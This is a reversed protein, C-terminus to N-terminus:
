DTSPNGGRLKKNTENADTIAKRKGYKCLVLDEKRPFYKDIPNNSIQALDAEKKQICYKRKRQGVRTGVSPKEVKYFNSQGVLSTSVNLFSRIDSFKGPKGIVIPNLDRPNPLDKQPSKPGLHGLNESFKEIRDNESTNEQSNKGMIVIEQDEQTELVVTSKGPTAAKTERSKMKELFLRLKNQNKPSNKKCKPKIKKCPSKKGTMKSSKSKLRDDPKDPRVHIKSTTKSAIEFSESLHRQNDICNERSRDLDHVSRYFEGVFCKVNILKVNFLDVKPSNIVKFLKDVRFVDLPPCTRIKSDLGTLDINVGSSDSVISNRPLSLESDNPLPNTTTSKASYIENNSTSLRFLDPWTSMLRLLDLESDILYSTDSKLLPSIKIPDFNVLSLDSSLNVSDSDSVVFSSNSSLRSNLEYNTTENTPRLYESRKLDSFNRKFVTLSREGSKKSFDHFKFSDPM